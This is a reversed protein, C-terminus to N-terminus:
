GGTYLVGGSTTEPYLLAISVIPIKDNPQVYKFGPWILQTTIVPGSALSWTGAFNTVFDNVNYLDYTSTRQANSFTPSFPLTPTAPQGLIYSRIDTGTM